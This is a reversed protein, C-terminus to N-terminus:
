AKRQASISEKASAILRDAIAGPLIKFRGESIAQKIEQVRARDVPPEAEAKLQAAVASFQVPVSNAAVASREPPPRQHVTSSPASPPLKISNDIKM